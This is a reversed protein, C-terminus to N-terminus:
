EAAGLTKRELKALTKRIAKLDAKPPLFYATWEPRQPMRDIADFLAGVGEIGLGAALANIVGAKLADDWESRTLLNNIPVRRGQADELRDAYKHYHGLYFHALKIAVVAGVMQNFHSAQENLVAETWYAPKALDPLPELEKEGTEGALSAIYKDFYGRAVTDIAKAHAVNNMLDIFGASVFVFRLPREEGPYEILKVFPAVDTELSVPEPSVAARQQPSMSRYLDLGLARVSTFSTKYRLGPIPAAALALRCSLLSAVAL